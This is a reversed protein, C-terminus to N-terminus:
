KAADQPRTTPSASVSPFLFELPRHLRVRWARENHEAGTDEFHMLDVGDRWGAARLSAAMQRTAPAGDEGRGATGSDLYLKPRPTGSWNTKLLATYTQGKPDKFWFAPSMVGAMGFVDPRLLAAQFSILGGMSSGMIATNSPDPLTRYKADIMPKVDQTLFQIYAQGAADCVDPGPGYDSMRQATNGLAVVIFPRVRGEGILRDATLNVQWGGHGFPEVPDDWCNQGDHMYLVPYRRDKQEAYGPPLHIYLDRPLLKGSSAEVAKIIEAIRPHFPQKEPKDRSPADRGPQVGVFLVSNGYEGPPNSNDPDAEWRAADCVFKYQYRGPKLVLTATFRGDSDPGSMPTATLSWGNFEGALHVAKTGPTPRHHFTVRYQGDATAELVPAASAHSAVLALLCILSRSM